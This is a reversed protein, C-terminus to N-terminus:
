YSKEHGIMSWIREGEPLIIFHFNFIEETNRIFNIFYFIWIQMCTMRLTGRSLMFRYWRFLRAFDFAPVYISVIRFLFILINFHWQLYNSKKDKWAIRNSTLINELTQQSPNNTAAMHQHMISIGNVLFYWLWQDCTVLGVWLFVFSFLYFTVSGAWSVITRIVYAVLSPEPSGACGRLRALAKATRVCSTHFYAFPGVFFWVDLGVPHSRMHTQLIFKRLVFLAM